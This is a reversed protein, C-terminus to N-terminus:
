HQENRLTVSSVGSFLAPTQVVCSAEPNLSGSIAFYTFSLGSPSSPDVVPVQLCNEDIMKSDLMSYARVRKPNNKM